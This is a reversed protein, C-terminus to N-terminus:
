TNICQAFFSQQATTHGTQIVIIAPSAHHIISGHHRIGYSLLLSSLSSTLLLTEANDILEFLKLILEAGLFYWEVM